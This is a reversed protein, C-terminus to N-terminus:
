GRVAWCGRDERQRKNLSPDERHKVGEVGFSTQPAFVFLTVNGQGHDLIIMAPLPKNNTLGERWWFCIDGVRVAPPTFEKRPVM